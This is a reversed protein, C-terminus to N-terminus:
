QMPGALSLCKDMCKHLSARIRFVRVRLNEVELGMKQAIERRFDIKARKDEQYYDLILKRNEPTLESLCKDLCDHLLEVEEADDSNNNGGAPIVSEILSSDAVPKTPRQELVVIRAVGYFFLAPDGSYTEALEPLKKMVRDITEDALDEANWFGRWSFLKILSQRIHEYKEGAQERDPGLWDMLVDFKEKTPISHKRM